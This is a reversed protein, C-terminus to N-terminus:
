AGISDRLPEPPAWAAPSGTAWRELLSRAVIEARHAALSLFTDNIGHEHEAFGLLHVAPRFISECEVRFDRGLKPRGDEDTLLYSRVLSLCDPLPQRRYGTALIVYDALLSAHEGSTRCRTSLEVRDALICAREVMIDPHFHILDEGRLHAEYISRYLSDILDRDLVPANMLRLSSVFGDRRGGDLRCTYDMAGPFLEESAAHSDDASRFAFSHRISVVKASKGALHHLIEAASQGAGIVVITKGAIEAAVPIKELYESSHFVRAGLVGKFIAPVDPRDGGALVVCDTLVSTGSEVVVKLRVIAGGDGEVPIVQTVAQGRCTLERFQDAVWEIYQAFDIRYPFATRLNVFEDLRGTEKLFNIFTYPSTPKRHTVLDKLFSVQLTAEPLLIGPDGSSRPLKELFAVRGALAARGMLEELAIALAVNPPGFGVGVLQYPRECAVFKAPVAGNEGHALSYQDLAPVARRGGVLLTTSGPFTIPDVGPAPRLHNAEHCLTPVHASRYHGPRQGFAAKFKRSLHSADSFGTIEAVHELKGSSAALLHRVVHVRITTLYEKISLGLESRFLHALHSFSVNVQRALQHSRLPRAYQSRIVDVAALVSPGLLLPNVVGTAAAADLLDKLKFPPSLMARLGQYGSKAFCSPYAGEPAIVISPSGEYRAAVMHLVSLSATTIDGFELVTLAPAITSLLSATGAQTSAAHIVASRRFLVEFTALTGLDASFVLVHPKSGHDQVSTAAVM